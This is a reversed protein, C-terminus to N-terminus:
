DVGVSENYSVIIHHYEEIKKVLNDFCSKLYGASARWDGGPQEQCTVPPPIPLEPQDCAVPILVDKYIIQPEPTAHSCGLLGILAMILAILALIGAPVRNTPEARM